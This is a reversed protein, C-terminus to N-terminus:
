CGRRSGLRMSRLKYLTFLKGNKGVRQQRFIPSAGRDEAYIAAVCLLLLPFLLILGLTSFLLDFFRIM